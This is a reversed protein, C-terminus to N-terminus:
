ILHYKNYDDFDYADIHMKWFSSGSKSNADFHSFFWKHSQKMLKHNIFYFMHKM